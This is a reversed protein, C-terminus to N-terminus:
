GAHLINSPHKLLTQKTAIDNRLTQVIFAVPLECIFLIRYKFSQLLLDDVPSGLRSLSQQSEQRSPM